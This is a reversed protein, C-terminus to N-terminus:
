AVRWGTRALSLFHLVRRVIPQGEPTAQTPHPNLSYYKEHRSQKFRYVVGHRILWVLVLDYLVPDFGKIKRSVDKRLNEGQTYGENVKPTSRTPRALSIIIWEAHRADVEPPLVDRINLLEPLDDIGHPYRSAAGPHAAVAATLDPGAQAAPPAPPTLVEIAKRLQYLRRNQRREREAQGVLEVFRTRVSEPLERTEIEAIQQWLQREVSEATASGTRSQVHQREHKLASWLQRAIDLRNFIGLTTDFQRLYMRKIRPPIVGGCRTRILDANLRILLTYQELATQSRQERERWRRHERLVPHMVREYYLGFDHAASDRLYGYLVRWGFPLSHKYEARHAARIWWARLFSYVWTLWVARHKWSIGLSIALLVTSAGAPFAQQPTKWLSALHQHQPRYLTTRARARLTDLSMRRALSDEDPSSTWYVYAALMKEMSALNVASDRTLPFPHTFYAFGYQRVRAVDFVDEYVSDLSLPAHSTTDIRIPVGGPAFCRHSFFCVYATSRSQHWVIWVLGGTDLTGLPDALPRCEPVLGMFVSDLSRYREGLVKTPPVVLTEVPMRRYMSQVASATSAFVSAGDVAPSTHFFFQHISPVQMLCIVVLSISITLLLLSTQLWTCKFCTCVPNKSGNGSAYFRSM